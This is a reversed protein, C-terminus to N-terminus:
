RPVARLHPQRTSSREPKTTSAAVYLHSYPRTPDGGEKTWRRRDFLEAPDRFFVEPPLDFHKALAELDRVTLKTKGNLRNSVQARTVGLPEALDQREQGLAALLVNVVRSVNRELGGRSSDAFSRVVASDAMRNLIVSSSCGRVVRYPNRAM